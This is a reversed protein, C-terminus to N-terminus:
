GSTRVPTAARLRRLRELAAGGDLSATARDVAERLTTQDDAVRVAAAANLLVAARLAAPAQGPADFLAEIAMANEGPEGGSTGDLDATALGLSAPDLLWERITGDRVEWVLTEGVPAIEDMGIRAHVVMAATAGLRLLTEAM